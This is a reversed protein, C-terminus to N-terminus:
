AVHSAHVADANVREVDSRSLALDSLGRDDMAYLARASSRADLWAELKLLLGLVRGDRRPASFSLGAIAHSAFM